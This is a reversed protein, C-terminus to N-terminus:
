DWSPTRCWIRPTAPSPGRGRRGISREFRGSAADFVDIRHLLTNSVWVEDGVECVGGVRLAEPPQYRTVVGGGRNVRSVGAVLDGILLDGNSMTALANPGKGPAIASNFDLTAVGASWSMVSQLASDSILLGDATAALDVPKVLGIPADPETGFFFEALKAQSQTPPQGTRLNGLSQVYRGGPVSVSGGRDAEFAPRDACGSVFLSIAAPFFAVVSACLCLSIRLTHEPRRPRNEFRSFVGAARVCRVLEADRHRQPSTMKKVWRACASLTQPVDPM